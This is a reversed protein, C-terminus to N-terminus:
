TDSLSLRLTVWKLGSVAVGDFVAITYLVAIADRIVDAVADVGAIGVGDSIANSLSIALLCDKARGTRYQLLSRVSDM